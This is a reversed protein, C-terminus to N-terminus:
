GYIWLQASYHTRQLFINQLINVPVAEWWALELRYGNYLFGYRRRYKINNLIRPNMTVRVILGPVYIIYMVLLVGAIVMSAIHEVTEYCQVGVNTM